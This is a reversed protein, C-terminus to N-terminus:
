PATDKLAQRVVQWCALGGRDFGQDKAWQTIMEDLKCMAGRLLEVKQPDSM